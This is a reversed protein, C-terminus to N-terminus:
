ERGSRADIISSYGGDGVGDTCDSITIPVETNVTDMADVADKITAAL